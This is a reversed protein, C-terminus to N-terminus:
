AFRDRYAILEQLLALHNDGLTPAGERLLGITRGMAVPALFIGDHHQDIVACRRGSFNNGARQLIVIARDNGAFGGEALSQHLGNVGQRLVGAQRQRRIVVVRGAAPQDLAIVVTNRKVVVVVVVVLRLIRLAALDLGGVGTARHEASAPDGGVVLDVRRFGNGNLILQQLMVREEIEGLM